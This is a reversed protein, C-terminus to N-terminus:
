GLLIGAGGGGRHEAGETRCHQKEEGAVVLQLGGVGPPDAVAAPVFRAPQGDFVAAEVVVQRLRRHNQQRISTQGEADSHQKLCQAQQQQKEAQKMQAWAASHAGASDLPEAPQKGRGATREEADLGYHGPEVGCEKVPEARVPGGDRYQRQRPRGEQNQANKGPPPHRRQGDGQHARHGGADDSVQSGRQEDCRQDGPVVGEVGDRPSFGNHGQTGAGRRRGAQQRCQAQEPLFEQAGARRCQQALRGPRSVTIADQQMGTPGRM